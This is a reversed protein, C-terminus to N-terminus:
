RKKGETESETKMIWNIIAMRIVDSRTVRRCPTSMRDAIRDIRPLWSKPIKAGAPVSKADPEHNQAKTRIFKMLDNGPRFWEGIVHLHAFKAHLSKEAERSGPMSGILKAKLERLRLVVSGSYGIKILEDNKRQAFYVSM